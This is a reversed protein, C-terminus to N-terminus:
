NKYNINRNYTRQSIISFSDHITTTIPAIGHSNTYVRNKERDKNGRRKLYHIKAYAIHLWTLRKTSNMGM